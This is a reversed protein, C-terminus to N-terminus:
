QVAPQYKRVTIFPVNTEDVLVAPQTSGSSPKYLRYFKAANTSVLVAPNSSGSSSYGWTGSVLNTSEQLSFGSYSNSWSLTYQNVGTRSITLAPTGTAAPTALTWGVVDLATLEATGVDVQTNPGTFANQVQNFHNTIGTVPSWNSNYSWWDGYDGGSNQNYRAILHSGDISFYADDGITTFTRVRNTTYRFLDVPWIESTDSLASSIGLVEDMEHEAVQQLDYKSSSGPPRSLNCISLKFSITADTGSYSGLGLLRAQPTTVHIKTGGIVPDTSSQPLLSIALFDNTSTAHSRLASIFSSYSVDYGYTSSAGLGTTEDEVFTIKVTVNNVVNSQLVNIAALIANTGTAYISSTISSDFTPVITLANASCVWAAVAVALWTKSITIMKSNM